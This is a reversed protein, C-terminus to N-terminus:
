LNELSTSPGSEIELYDWTELTHVCIDFDNILHLPYGDMTREDENDSWVVMISGNKLKVIKNGRM